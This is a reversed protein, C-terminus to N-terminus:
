GPAPQVAALAPASKGSANTSAAETSNEEPEPTESAEKGVFVVAFIVGNVLLVLALLYPWWSRKEEKPADSESSHISKIDPVNGREREQESKKLAELIYSM